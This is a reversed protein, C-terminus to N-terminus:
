TLAVYKIMRRNYTYVGHILGSQGKVFSPYSVEKEITDIHRPPDWTTGGDRTVSISLPYRRHERTHNHVVALGGNVPFVGIGSLPSPLPTRLPGSWSRGEDTSHSRWIRRPEGCPRFLITLQGRPDRVVVPQILELDHFRYHEEWTEWPPRSTLLVSRRTKEEYAPLLLVENELVVPPHRVMLGAQNWLPVPRSWTIGGDRSWTGQLQADNWYSGKLSVFLLGIREGGPEEFLVPNGLSHMGPEFLLHSASWGTHGRPKRALALTAGVHEEEPYVYWAVLLDGSRCELLTPCHCYSGRDKPNYLFQTETM